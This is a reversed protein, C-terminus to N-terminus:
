QVSRDDLWLDGMIELPNARWPSSLGRIRRHAFVTDVRPFLFTAPVDVRFIETIERRIRDEEDPDMALPLRQLLSLVSANRYSLPSKEGFWRQWYGPSWATLALAADFQGNAMRRGAGDLTQIAMSVGVRRLAAQIYVAMQSFGPQNGVLLTFHFSRGERERVGHRERQRWGASDFLESSQAPDYPLPEPLEGRGAQRWTFPGDVIPLSEPLNLMQRLERRDIALTLARRISPDRLLPHANQWFIAYPKQLFRYYARFSPSLGSQAPNAGMLIDVNGSLLEAVEAGRTFKLVVREIRPKGRYYDPSAEFEMMTQPVHNVFRYPGNGVPRTWFDWETVKKPDLHELLHKPFIVEWGQIRREALIGSYRVRITLDDLVTISEVGHALAGIDPHTLLELTFKMDHATVPVGDHWRVNKRLHFTWERHDPSHEWREALRGELERKENEALLPLFVLLRPFEDEVPNMDKESGPYAVIVTSGRSSARDKRRGCGSAAVALSGVCMEVFRRRDIASFPAVATMM